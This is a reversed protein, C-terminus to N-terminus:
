ARSERRIRCPIRYMVIVDGTQDDITDFREIIGQRDPEFSRGDDLTVDRVLERPPREWELQQITNFASAPIRYSTGLYTIPRDDSMTQVGSHTPHYYVAGSM